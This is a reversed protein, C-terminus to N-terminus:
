QNLSQLSSSMPGTITVAAITFSSAEIGDKPHNNIEKFLKKSSEEKPHNNVDNFVQDPNEELWSM